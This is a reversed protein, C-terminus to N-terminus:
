AKESKWKEYLLAAKGVQFANYGENGCRETDIKIQHEFENNIYEDTFCNYNKILYQQFDDKEQPNSFILFHNRNKYGNTIDNTGHTFITLLKGEISSLDYYSYWFNDKGDISVYANQAKPLYKGFQDFVWLETEYVITSHYMANLKAFRTENHYYFASQPIWGEWYEGEIIFQFEPSCVNHGRNKKGWDFVWEETNNLLSDLRDLVSLNIGFRKKWLYEINNIDATKNIPTNTDMVRTYINNAKVKGYDEVLFFPTSRSNEIVIVDITKDGIIVPRVYVRPRIGGAFKQDKLFDVMKQTNKRNSDNTVDEITYDNEEDVGIILYSDRNVLNNALCIVRHLLKENDKFWERKFDWYEGEQKRDILECMM